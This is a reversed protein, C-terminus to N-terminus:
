NEVGRSRPQVMVTNTTGGTRLRIPLPERRSKLNERAQLYAEMGEIEEEAITVLVDGPRIGADAAPQDEKVAVVMVGSTATIGLADKLRLVTQDDSDLSAVKMGLWPAAETAAGSSMNEQWVVPVVKVTQRSGNRVFILDVEESPTAAAVMFLLQRKSEVTLGAFEVVVDGIMLGAEVAPSNLKLEIIRAGSMPEGAVEEGMVQVVDETVTGLYGRIVRGNEKLQAYIVQVLRSPVAFGIGQGRQSIATNVGMVLGHIDVLPGGSNGFNISADTQIFDQYRPTLGGIELDGRGKASVVGVTLTSELNGFPNGIAIAWAGVPLAESDGFELVPLNRGAPDIKLLALDTNPDSGVLEARFEIKEGSFRVFIADANAIVHHNTLIDGSASVVFGSGTSPSEFRGGKGEEDPFFQRYMEQLPQTGVGEANVSKIIRINVVAPRVAESVAVFPSRDAGANVEVARSPGAVLALFFLAALFVCVFVCVMYMSQGNAYGKTADGVPLAMVPSRQSSHRRSVGFSMSNNKDKHLKM